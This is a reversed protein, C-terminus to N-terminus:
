SILMGWYKKGMFYTIGRPFLYERCNQCFKCPSYKNGPFFTSRSHLREMALRISDFKQTRKLHKEIHNAQMLRSTNVFDFHCFVHIQIRNFIIDSVFSIRLFDFVLSLLHIESLRALVTWNNISM